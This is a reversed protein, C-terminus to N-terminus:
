LQLGFHKLLSVFDEFKSPEYSPSWPTELRLAADMRSLIILDLSQRQLQLKFHKLLSVVNEFKSPDYSPSWPSELRLEAVM